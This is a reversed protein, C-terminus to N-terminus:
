DHLAEHHDEEAHHAMAYEFATMEEPIGVLKKPHHTGFPAEYLEGDALHHEPQGDLFKTVIIDGDGGTVIASGESGTDSEEDSYDSVVIHDEEQQELFKIMYTENPDVDNQNVPGDLYKTVM